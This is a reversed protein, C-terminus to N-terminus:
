ELPSWGTVQMKKQVIRLVSEDIRAESLTGDDAAARLADMIERQLDHRPGCLILDGGALLFRVAAEGAPCQSTLGGMRFDDSMVIGDFGLEERLLGGIIAPSLSAINEADLAPYRIHAVLVVDVGAEVAAAFPVLDYEFLEDASKDVVPTTAHSDASTGGHGPFHKAASLCGADHLGAIIAAGIDSTVVADSSIIRTGLFTDDPDPAVDLVPALNLNIGTELLKKGITQFQRYAADPDDRTGFTQASSPWPNWRFRVVSGGEVDISILMPIKSRCTARLAATLRAARSFGGDADGQAVNTGYLVANGVCYTELVDSFEDSVSSAGSGGFMVLQGLKEEVPLSAVWQALRAEESMPTATPTPTAAPTPPNGAPTAAVTAGPQSASPAEQAAAPADRLASVLWVVGGILLGALLLTLIMWKLSKQLM